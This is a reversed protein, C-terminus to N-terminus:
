KQRTAEWKGALGMDPMELGGEMSDGSVNMKFKVAIEGGSPGIAMVTFGFVGNELTVESLASENLTGYEGTMHGTLKGDKLELVLTLFNPAGEGDLTAEGGWTGALDAPKQAM